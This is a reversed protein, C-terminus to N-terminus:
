GQPAIGPKGVTQLSGAILILATFLRFILCEGGQGGNGQEM